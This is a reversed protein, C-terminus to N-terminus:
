VHVAVSVVAGSVVIVPPGVPVNAVPSAVNLKEELSLPEYSHESSPPAHAAHGEGAVKVASASPECVNDARAFSAEPFTSGVGATRVHDISVRAGSVVIVPPGVPVTDDLAAVTVKVAVSDAVNSHESSLAAQDAHLEGLDYVPSASPECTNETRARSATPFLSAVGAVREHVDFLPTDFSM